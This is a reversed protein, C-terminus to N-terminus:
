STVSHVTSSGITGVQVTVIARPSSLATGIKVVGRDFGSGAHLAGIGTAMGASRDRITRAVTQEVLPLEEAKGRASCIGFESRISRPDTGDKGERGM